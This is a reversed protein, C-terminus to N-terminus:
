NRSLLRGDVLGRRRTLRPSGILSFKYTRCLLLHQTKSLRTSSKAPEPPNSWTHSSPNPQKPLSSSQTQSTSAPSNSRANSYRFHTLPLLLPPHSNPYLPLRVAFKVEPDQISVELWSRGWSAELKEYHKASMKGAKLPGVTSKDAVINEESETPNEHQEPHLPDETSRDAEVDEQSETPNGVTEDAAVPAPPALSRMLDERGTENEFVLKGEVVQVNWTLDKGLSATLIQLPADAEKLALVEVTARRLARTIESRETMVTGPLFAKEIFSNGELGDWNEKWWGGFGGVRELGDWTEAPEYNTKDKRVREKM